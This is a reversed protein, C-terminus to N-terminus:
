YSPYPITLVDCKAHSILSYATSGLIRYIGHREHHGVILLNVSHKEIFDPIIIKPDGVEVYQDKTPVNLTKGIDALQSMAQKIYLPEKNVIEPFPDITPMEVIHMLSIKSQFKDQFQKLKEKATYTGKDFEVAFLIHQYM